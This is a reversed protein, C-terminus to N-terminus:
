KRTQETSGVAQFLDRLTNSGGLLLEGDVNPDDHRLKSSLTCLLFVKCNPNMRRIEASHVRYNLDNWPDLLVINFTDATFQQMVKSWGTTVVYHGANRLMDAVVDWEMVVGVLIRWPSPEPHPLVELGCVKRFEDRDIKDPDAKLLDALLHSTLLKKAQAGTMVNEAIVQIIAQAQLFTLLTLEAEETDPTHRGEAM